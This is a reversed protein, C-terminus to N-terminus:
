KAIIEYNISDLTAQAAGSIPAYCMVALNSGPTTTVDLSVTETWLANASGYGTLAASVKGAGFTVRVDIEDAAKLTKSSPPGGGYDYASVSSSTLQLGLGNAFLHEPVNPLTYPGADPTLAVGCAVGSPVRWGTLVLKMSQTSSDLTVARWISMTTNGPYSPFDCVLNGGSQIAADVSWNDALAGTEFGDGWSTIVTGGGADSTGADKDGPGADGMAADTDNQASADSDTGGDSTSSGRVAKEAAALRKPDFDDPFAGCYPSSLQTGGDASDSDDAVTSELAFKTSLTKGDYDLTFNGTAGSEVQSVLVRLHYISGLAKSVESFARQLETKSSALFVRGDSLEGLAKQDVDSGLGIAYIKLTPDAERVNKLTQVATTSISSATDAGDTFVVMVRQLQSGAASFHALHTVADFIKTQSSSTAADYADYHYEVAVKAAEPTDYVGQTTSASGDSCVLTPVEPESAFTAVSVLAEKPLSDLFMEAGEKVASESGSETISYSQDLLLSVLLGNSSTLAKTGEVGVKRGNVSMAVDDAKLDLVNKEGDQLVFYVNAYQCTEKPAGDCPSSSYFTRYVDLCLSGACATHGGSKSDDSSSKCAGLALMPILVCVAHLFRFRRM